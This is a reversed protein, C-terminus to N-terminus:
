RKTKEQLLKLIGGTIDTMEGGTRYLLASNSFREDSSDVILDFRDKAYEAALNAVSFEKRFAAAQQARRDVIEAIPKKAEAVQQAFAQYEKEAPTSEIKSGPASFVHSRIAESHKNMLQSNLADYQRVKEETEPPLADAKKLTETKDRQWQYIASEIERKNAVAWRIPPPTSAKALEAKLAELQALVERHNKEQTANQSGGCGVLALCAALLLYSKM